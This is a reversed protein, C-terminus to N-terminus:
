WRASTRRRGSFREVNGLVLNLLWWPVTRVRIERWLVDSFIRAVEGMSLPRNWGVDIREGELAGADSGRRVLARVPKGRARLAGVVQRGRAGTGGVVLKPRDQDVM